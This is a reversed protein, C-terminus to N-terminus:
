RRYDLCMCTCWRAKIYTREGGHCCRSRSGLAVGAHILMGDPIEPSSMRNRVQAVVVVDAWGDPVGTSEFVGDTVTVRNDKITESFVKRMGESPDIAKLRRISPSWEPHALM